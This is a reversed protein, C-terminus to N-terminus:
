KKTIYPYLVIEELVSHMSLSKIFQNIYKQKENLNPEALYKEYLSVFHRHDQIVAEDVSTLDVQASSLILSSPLSM